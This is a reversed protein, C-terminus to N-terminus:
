VKAPFRVFPFYSLWEHEFSLNSQRCNLARYNGRPKDSRGYHNPAVPNTDATKTKKDAYSQRFCM